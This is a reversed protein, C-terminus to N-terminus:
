DSDDEIITENLTIPTDWSRDIEPLISYSLPAESSPHVEWYAQYARKLQADFRRNANSDVSDVSASQMVLMCAEFHLIDEVDENFNIKDNNTYDITTQWMANTSGNVFAAHTYFEFYYPNFQQITFKDFPITLTEGSETTGVISWKAIDTADPSGEQSANQMEFKMMNWGDTFYDGISDSTSTMSYYNSDDTKLRVEISALKKASTLYAPLIVVGKLYDSIDIATALTDGFEVGADTFTAEISGSGLIYNHSNLTPSGGTKTGVTEMTDIMQTDEDESHRVRLFRIGNIYEITYVNNEYSKKHFIKAPRYSFKRKNDNSYLSSPVLVNDPCYYLSVDSALGGYIPVVRKLTEPRIQRITTRVARKIITNWSVSLSVGGEFDEKLESIFTQADIM